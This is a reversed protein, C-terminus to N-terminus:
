GLYLLNGAFHSDAGEEGGSFSIKTIQVIHFAGAVPHSTFILLPTELTPVAPTSGERPSEGEECGECLCSRFNNGDIQEM